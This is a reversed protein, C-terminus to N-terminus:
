NLVNGVDHVSVYKVVEIKGTDKHIEVAALDFVYGFTVASAVRDQDDPADLMEPNMITTEFLGPEMQEPLGAPHWHTQAALRRVPLAKEPVGVLQANGGVLEIDEPAVELNEAAILKIKTAVKEAANAIAGIVVASFRNAYNGSALSWASTLTDVETIVDIQDPRLGLADAVVQAAVTQHGQGAPTSVTKVTVSGSPDVSVTATGLGGSRGGAKAREEPTQALTVYAMNSGSPEIGAAMGIGVLKGDARAEKRAEKLADYAALDLAKKLGTEYNGSDYTAGAPAKYPFQEPQIFNRRRIEAPDIALAKAGADMVRELAYYFQPGGYGRNLGIPTTNTVVLRNEVGIDRVRYCGNSASHMRYVSAPEPARVFAGVNVINNFKLALLEGDKSFAAEVGDARDAGTSSATLHELRDEIWKVPCGLLRSCAALLVMYPFM